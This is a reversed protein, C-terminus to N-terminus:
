LLQWDHESVDEAPLKQEHQQNPITDFGHHKVALEKYEQKRKSKKTFSFAGALKKYHRQKVEENSDFRLDDRNVLVCAEEDLKVEDAQEINDTGHELEIEGLSWSDSRGDLEASSDGYSLLRTEKETDVISNSSIDSLINDSKTETENSSEMVSNCRTDKVSTPEMNGALESSAESKRNSVACCSSADNEYKKEINTPSTETLSKCGKTTSERGDLDLKHHINEDDKKRSYGDIQSRNASYPSSVLYPHDNAHNHGRPLKHVIGRKTDATVKSNETSKEENFKSREIKMGMMPKKCIVVNEYNDLASNCVAVKEDNLESPPLFDQMVDSYFRKVSAGVVEVQNEVYKVTDQCIIDEVELCMTEFKEYLRGVWAIGKVDM